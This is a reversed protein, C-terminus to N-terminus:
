KTLTRFVDITAEGTRCLNFQRNAREFARKGMERRMEDGVILESVREAMLLPEAAPLVYGTKGNEIMEPLVNVDTALVPKGMIMYEAAVRCIVESDQSAIIGADLDNIIARPDPVKGLFACRHEIGLEQARRKLDDLSIQADEGSIVFFSNELKRCVSEAMRLFYDHGKVPSLRAIIGAIIVNQDLNYNKRIIGDPMDRLFRKADIGSHIVSIKKKDIRIRETARRFAANSPFIIHSAWTGYLFRNIANNRVPRHDCRTRVVPIRPKMIGRLAAYTLAFDQSSHCNIVDPSFESIANRLAKIAKLIIDPRLRQFPVHLCNRVKKEAEAFSPTGRQGIFLIDHGTDVLKEALSIAYYAPANWWPSYFTVIIRM